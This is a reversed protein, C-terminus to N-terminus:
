KQTKRTILRVLCWLGQIEQKGESRSGNGQGILIQFHSKSLHSKSYTNVSDEETVLFSEGFYHTVLEEMSISVDSILKQTWHTNSLSIKNLSYHSISEKIVVIM